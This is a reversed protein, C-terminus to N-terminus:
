IEEKGACEPCLWIGDREVWGCSEVEETIQKKVYYRSDCLPGIHIEGCKCKCIGYYETPCKHTKIM